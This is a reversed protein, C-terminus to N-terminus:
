TAAKCDPRVPKHSLPPTLGLAGNGCRIENYARARGHQHQRGRFPIVTGLMRLFYDPEPFTAVRPNREPNMSCYEHDM